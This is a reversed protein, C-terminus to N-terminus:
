ASLDGVYISGDDVSLSRPQQPATAGHPVGYPWNEDWPTLHDIAVRWLSQGPAYLNAINGREEDTIGLASLTAPDSPTGSGTADIDALGAPKSLV